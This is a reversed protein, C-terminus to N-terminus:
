VPSVKTALNFFIGPFYKRLLVAYADAKGVLVERKRRAVAKLMRVAAKEATMGKEQGPDMVGYPTGDGTLANVSVQSQIRGPVAITVNIRDKNYESMLTEFFGHLAHKSASYASRVPFGFRGVVSSTVLFHGRGQKRMAPLVAKTLAITGFYNVDMIRHDVELSTEHILSRQSIGAVHFVYDLEPIISLVKEATVKVADTDSIDLPFVLCHEPPLGSDNCVEKLASENRASLVLFGGCRAVELALAKGIGSSAGTIWFWKGTFKKKLNM